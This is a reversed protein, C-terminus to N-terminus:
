VTQTSTAPNASEGFRPALVVACVLGLIAGGAVQYPYHAGDEVRSWAILGAFLYFVPGFRPFRETLLYAMVCHAATHGSPFGGDHGSPRAMWGLGHYFGKQAIQVLITETGIAALFQYFLAKSRERYAIYLLALIGVVLYTNHFGNSLFKGAVRAGDADFRPTFGTFFLLLTLLALGIRHRPKWLPAFLAVSPLTVKMACFAIPLSADCCFLGTEM